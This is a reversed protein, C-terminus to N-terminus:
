NSDLGDFRARFRLCFGNIPLEGGWSKHAQKQADDILARKGWVKVSWVAREGRPSGAKGLKSSTHRPSCFLLSLARECAGGPGECCALLEGEGTLNRRCDAMGANRGGDPSRRDSGCAALYSQTSQAPPAVWLLAVLPM